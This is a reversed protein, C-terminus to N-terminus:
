KTFSIYKNEHLYLVMEALANPITWRFDAIPPKIANFNDPYYQVCRDWWIALYYRIPWKEIYNPMVDLMEMVSPMIFWENWPAIDYINGFEDIVKETAPFGIETLKKCLELSPYHLTNM